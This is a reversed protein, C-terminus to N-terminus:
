PLIEFVNSEARIARDPLGDTEVSWVLTLLYRGPRLARCPDDWQGTIFWDLSFQSPLKMDPRLDNHGHRTCTAVFGDGIQEHITATWSASFPRHITRKVRLPVEEGVRASNVEIAHVEMWRSAPLALFVIDDLLPALTFAAFTGAAVAALPSFLKKWIMICRTEVSGNVTCPHRLAIGIVPYLVNRMEQDRSPFREARGQVRALKGGRGRGSSAITRVTVFLWDRRRKEEMLEDIARLKAALQEPTGLSRLAVLYREAEDDRGAGAPQYRSPPGTGGGSGRADGSGMVGEFARAAPEPVIEFVNSEGRVVRVASSDAFIVWVFTVKYRGPRLRPCPPTSPAGMWTSLDLGPPIVTDPQLDSQGTRSCFAVFRSGEERRITRTWQASLPRHVVRDVEVIPWESGPEPTIVISRVDMWRSALYADFQPSTLLVALTGLAIGLVPLLIRRM